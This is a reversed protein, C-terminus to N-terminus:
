RVGLNIDKMKAYVDNGTLGRICLGTPCTRLIPCRKEFTRGYPCAGQTAHCGKGVPQYKRASSSGFVGFTPTSTTGALHLPLSDMALVLNVRGMLNQLAPLPMRDIIVSKEPFQEHLKQVTAKEEQSGWVLLFACKLDPQLKQMLGLLAESTMQKNPWASGPCIMVQYKNKLVPNDLIHDIKQQLEQSINLAVGSAQFPQSDEFFSKAVYLYDERINHGSPPDFRRNTFLLNPWEPITKSGFGIKNNSLSLWTMLGSKINGQLDLVCDYHQKQVTKRFEGIEKWTQTSFLNKRWSRTKVVLTNRIEPHARVLEACQEEVVWDIQVNPFRSKLYAVVPFAHIVDGLASTKVILVNSIKM